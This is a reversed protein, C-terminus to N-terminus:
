KLWYTQKTSNNTHQRVGHHDHTRIVMPDMIKTNNRRNRTKSNENQKLWLTLRHQPRRATPFNLNNEGYFMTKNDCLTSIVVVMAGRVMLLSKDDDHHNRPLFQIKYLYSDKTKQHHLIATFYYDGRGDWSGVLLALVLRLCTLRMILM